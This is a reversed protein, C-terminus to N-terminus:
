EAIVKGTAVPAGDVAVVYILRGRGFRHSPVKTNQSGQAVRSRYITRGNMDIISLMGDAELMTGFDITLTHGQPLPNPYVNSQGVPTLAAPKVGSSNNDYFSYIRYTDETTMNAYDKDMVLTQKSQPIILYSGYKEPAYEGLLIGDENYVLYSEGNIDSKRWTIEWKDDNNFLNQTAAIDSGDHNRYLEFLDYPEFSGQNNNIVGYKVPMTFEKVINIGDFITFKTNDGVAEWIIFFQEGNKDLADAAGYFTPFTQKATIEQAHLPSAAASACLLAIILKNKM